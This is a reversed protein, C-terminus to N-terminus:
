PLAFGFQNAGNLKSALLSLPRGILRYLVSNSYNWERHIAKFKSGEQPLICFSFSASTALFLMKWNTLETFAFLLLTTSFHLSSFDTTRLMPSHLSCLTALPALGPCKRSPPLAATICCEHDSLNVFLVVPPRCNCESGHMWKWADELSTELVDEHVNSSPNKLPCWCWKLCNYHRGTARASGIFITPSRSFTKISGCWFHTVM